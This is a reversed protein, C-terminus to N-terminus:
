RRALLQALGENMLRQQDGLNNYRNVENQEHAGFEARLAEVTGRLAQLEALLPGLNVPSPPPTPTPTPTPNPTPGPTPSSGDLWDRAEVEVFVQDTIDEAHARPALTQGPAGAGIILDYGWLRGGARRAISENSLPRSHSARKTGWGENPWRAKFTGALKAVWAQGEEKSFGPLGFRDTFEEILHSHQPELQVPTEKPPEVPPPDPRPPDVPPVVIPGGIDVLPAVLDVRVRQLSVLNSFAVLVEGSALTRADPRDTIGQAVIHGHTEGWPRLFLPRGREPHGHTMVYLGLPTEVALPWFEDDPFVSLNETPAGHHRRGFVRRVGDVYKIWVLAEGTYRPEAIAGIDIGVGDVELIVERGLDVTGALHGGKSVTRSKLRDDRRWGSFHGNHCSWGELGPPHFLSVTVMTWRLIAGDDPARDKNRVFLLDTSTQWVGGSADVEVPEPRWDGSAPGVFQVPQGGRPLASAAIRAGDPSISPFRDSM